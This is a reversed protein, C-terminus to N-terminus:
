AWRGVWSQCGARLVRRLTVRRPGAKRVVFFIGQTLRHPPEAHSVPKVRQSPVSASSTAAADFSPQGTAAGGKPLTPQKAFFPKDYEKPERTMRAVSLLVTEGPGFYLRSAVLRPLPQRIRKAVASVNRLGCGRGRRRRREAAGAGRSRNVTDAAIGKLHTRAVGAACKAHLMRMTPRGLGGRREGQGGRGAPPSRVRQVEGKVRNTGRM